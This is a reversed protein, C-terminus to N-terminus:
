PQCRSCTVEKSPPATLPALVTGEIHGLQRGCHTVKRDVIESEVFHWKTRRRSDPGAETFRAIWLGLLGTMSREIPPTVIRWDIM